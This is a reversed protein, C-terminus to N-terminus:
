DFRQQPTVPLAVVGADGGIQKCTLSLESFHAYIRQQIAPDALDGPFGCACVTLDGHPVNEVHTLLDGPRFVGAVSAPAGDADVARAHLERVGVSPLRMLEGFNKVQWKGALVYVAAGDLSSAVASRVVVDLVRASSKIALALDAVSRPSAPVQRYGIGESRTYSDKVVARILFPGITVGSLAFRGDPGVPTMTYFRRGVDDTPSAVVAVHSFSVGGLDVKGTAGRTPELVLKVRDGVAAPRSRLEGRQAAISGAVVADRLVCHGAPDSTTIRLTDDEIPLGIGISDAFLNFAAAVTAGAVPRGHDDVVEGEITHGSDPRDRHPHAQWLRVLDAHAVAVDGRYLRAVADVFDLQWVLKPRHNALAIPRWTRVDDAVAELDAADSRTIRVYSRAIVAKIQAAPLHREGLDAIQTEILRFAEDWQNRQRAVVERRAALAAALDPQMVRNVAVQAQDIAAAGKPGSMPLERQYAIMRILLEARLREDGCRDALTQANGMEARGRPVDQTADDFAFLAIVRACPDAAPADLLALTERDSPRADTASRALLAYAAIVDRSPTVTLRPVDVPESKKCIAPDIMHTQIDEVTAGPAPAVGQRLADIRSLVGDLCQLQAQRVQPPATCAATRATQWDRVNADLVAAHAESTRARLEAAIAPSWVAAVDRAPPACGPAPPESTRLALVAAAAAAAVVAGGGLALAVGPRRQARVLRALLADMSPWRRAPDPDLGRRLLGRVRRPIRSADLAAPGRAVQRRLDDFTPGSYPRAGSLAEWLAVCYAFQDTAPTVAGGRWQEPAMYAPTGLLSGTVTIGALASPTSSSSTRSTRSATVSGPDLPLTEDLAPPLGVDAERALGFDTVVIRGDRGRLVNHPKFDRHVIGAAHAAALGRGAALFADLIAAAPRRTARLWEALSEGHILEMAVFDRGAATGVEHVTVVNPHNLRAMARAERMLRDKAELTATAGRLVKLAIRRELDPDFAAHVVGMAGAGLERELRYRGLTAGVPAAPEPAMASAAATATRALDQERDSGVEARYRV